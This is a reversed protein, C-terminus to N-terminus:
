EKVDEAAMHSPRDQFKQALNRDIRFSANQAGRFREIFTSPERQQDVLENRSHARHGRRQGPAHFHPERLEQPQVEQAGAEIREGIACDSEDKAIEHGLDDTSKACCSMRGLNYDDNGQNRKYTMPNRQVPLLAAIPNYWAYLYLYQGRLQQRLARSVYQQGIHAAMAIVTRGSDANGARNSHLGVIEAGFYCEERSVLVDVQVASARPFRRARAHRM